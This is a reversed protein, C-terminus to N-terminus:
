ADFEHECPRFAHLARREGKFLSNKFERKLTFNATVNRQKM